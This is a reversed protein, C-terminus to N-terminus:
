SELDISKETGCVLRYESILGLKLGHIASTDRYRKYFHIL